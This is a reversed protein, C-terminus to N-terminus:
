AKWPWQTELDGHWPGLWFGELRLIQIVPIGEMEPNDNMGSTTLNVVVKCVYMESSQRHKRPWHAIVQGHRKNQFMELYERIWYHM